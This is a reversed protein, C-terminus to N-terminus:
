HQSSPPESQHCGVIAAYCDCSFDKLGRSSIHLCFFIIKKKMNFFHMYIYGPNDLISLNVKIKKICFFNINVIFKVHSLKSFKM